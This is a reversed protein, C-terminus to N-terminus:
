KKTPKASALFASENAPNEITRGFIGQRGDVPHRCLDHSHIVATTKMQVIMIM